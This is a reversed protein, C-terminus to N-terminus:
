RCVKQIAEARVFEQLLFSEDVARGGARVVPMAWGPRRSGGASSAKNRDATCAPDPAAFPPPRSGAHPRTRRSKSPPPVLHALPLSRPASPSSRPAPPAASPSDRCSNVPRQRRAPLRWGAPSLPSLFAQSVSGGPAVRADSSVANARTPGDNQRGALPRDSTEVESTQNRHYSASAHRQTCAVGPLGIQAVQPRLNALGFYWTM